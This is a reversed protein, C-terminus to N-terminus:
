IIYDPKKFFPHKQELYVQESKEESLFSITICHEKHTTECYCRSVNNYEYRFLPINWISTEGELKGARLVHQIRIKDDGLYNEFNYFLPVDIEYEDYSPGLTCKAVINDIYCKNIIATYCDKVNKEFKLKDNISALSYFNKVTNLELILKVQEFKKITFVYTKSNNIVDYLSHLIEQFLSYNNEIEIKELIKTFLDDVNKHEIYVCASPILKIVDNIIAIDYLKNIKKLLISKLDIFIKETERTIVSNFFIICNIYLRNHMMNVGFLLELKNIWKEINEEQEDPLINIDELLENVRKEKETAIVSLIDESVFINLLLPDKRVNERSFQKLKESIKDDNYKKSNLYKENELKKDNKTAMSNKYIMLNRINYDNQLYENEDCCYKKKRLNKQCKCFKSFHIYINRFFLVKFYDNIEIGNFEIMKKQDRRNFQILPNYYKESLLLRFMSVLDLYRKEKSIELVSLSHKIENLEDSQEIFNNFKEKVYDELLSIKNELFDLDFSKNQKRHFNEYDLGLEKLLFTSILNKRLKNLLNKNHTYFKYSYILKKKQIFLLCKLVINIFYKYNIKKLNKLINDMITNMINNALNNKNIIHNIFM